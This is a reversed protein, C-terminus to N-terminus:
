KPPINRKQYPYPRSMPNLRGERRVPRAYKECGARWDALQEM